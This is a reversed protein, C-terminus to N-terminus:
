CAARHRHVGWAVLAVAITTGIVAATKHAALTRALSRVRTMPTPRTVEDTVESVAAAADEPWEIVLAVYDPGDIGPDEDFLESPM